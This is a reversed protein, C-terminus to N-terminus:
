WMDGDSPISVYLQGNEDRYIDAGYGSRSISAIAKETPLKEYRNWVGHRYMVTPKDKIVDIAEQRGLTVIRETRM